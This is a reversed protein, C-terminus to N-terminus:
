YQWKNICTTNAIFTHEYLVKVQFFLESQTYAAITNVVQSFIMIAIYNVKIRTKKIFLAHLDHIHSNLCCYIIILHLIDFHFFIYSDSVIAILLILLLQQLLHICPTPLQLGIYKLYGKLRRLSIEVLVWLQEVVQLVEMYISNTRCLAQEQHSETKYIELVTSCYEM